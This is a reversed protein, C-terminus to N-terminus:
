FVLLGLVYGILLGLVVAVAYSIRTVQYNISDLSDRISRLLKVSEAPRYNELDDM